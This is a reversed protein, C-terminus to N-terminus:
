IGLEEALAEFELAAKSIEALPAGITAARRVSAARSIKTKTLRWDRINSLMKMDAETINAPVARLDISRGTDESIAVVEEEILRYGQVTWRTAQVPVIVISSAHLACSLELCRAPPADLIAVDYQDTVKALASRLRPASAGDSALEANVGSLAPTAPIIDLDKHATPYIVDAFKERRTLFQRLNKAEIDEPNCTRLFYDTANNNHDADVVLVRRGKGCAALALFICLTTKASGGKLSACAIVTM